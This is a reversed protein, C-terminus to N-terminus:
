AAQDALFAEVARAAEVLSKFEFREYPSFAWGGQGDSYLRPEEPDESHWVEIGGGDGETFVIDCLYIM